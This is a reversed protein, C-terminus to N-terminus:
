NNLFVTQNVVQSITNRSAAVTITKDLVTHNKVLSIEDSKGRTFDETILLALKIRNVYQWQDDLITNGRMYGTDKLEEPPNPVFGYHIQMSEVGNALIVPSNTVTDECVFDKSEKKIIKGDKDKVAVVTVISLKINITADVEEIEQGNCDITPSDDQQTDALNNFTSTFFRLSLTDNEDIDDQGFIHQNQQWDVGITASLDEPTFVAMGLGSRLHSLKRNGAQQILTRLINNVTRSKDIIIHNSNVAAYATQNSTLTTYGGLIVISSLLLVIMLEVISYGSNQQSNDMSITNKNIMIGVDMIDGNQM